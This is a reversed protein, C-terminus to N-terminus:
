GDAPRDQSVPRSSAERMWIADVGQIVFDARDGDVAPLRGLDGVVLKDVERPVYPSCEILEEAESL